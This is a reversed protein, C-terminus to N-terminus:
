SRFVTVFEDPGFCEMICNRIISPPRTEIEPGTFDQEKKSKKATLAPALNRTALKTKGRVWEATAKRGGNWKVATKQRKSLAPYEVHLQAMMETPLHKWM